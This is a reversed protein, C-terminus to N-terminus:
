GTLPGGGRELELGHRFFGSEVKGDDFRVRYLEPDYWGFVSRRGYRKIVTGHRVGREPHFVDVPRVIRDGPVFPETM